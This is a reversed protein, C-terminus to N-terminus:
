PLIGIVTVNLQINASAALRLDALDIASTLILTGLFDLKDDSTLDKYAAFHIEYDGSELFAIKFEGAGNVASSAVANKFSIGNNSQIEIARNFAGKKYVYAVVKDANLIGNQCTGQLSGTENKVVLRLAAQLDASGVFDYHDSNGGVQYQVAKRLDFDLVLNTKAGSGVVFTQAATIEHMAITSLPHKVNDFTQVYCGPANGSADTQADLVLTINQYTGADIDGLGLVAVNGQQYALLDITKKGSFGSFTQGDVKVEAVTIFVAKVNPDETPGDTIELNLQSKNDNPDDDKKCAVFLLTTGALLALLIPYFKSFTM